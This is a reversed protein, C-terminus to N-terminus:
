MGFDTVFYAVRYTLCHLAYDLAPTRLRPHDVYEKLLYAALWAETRNIHSNVLVYTTPSVLFKFKQYLTRHLFTSFGQDLTIVPKIHYVLQGKIESLESVM